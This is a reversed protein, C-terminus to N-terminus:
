SAVEAAELLGERAGQAAREVRALQAGAELRAVDCTFEHRQGM